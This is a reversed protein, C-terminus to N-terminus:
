DAFEYYVRGDLKYSGDSFISFFGVMLTISGIDYGQLDIGDSPLFDRFYSAESNSNSGGGGLGTVRSIKVIDAEGNTLLAVIDNFDPDNAQNFTVVKGSDGNMLTVSLDRLDNPCSQGNANYEDLTCVSLFMSVSDYPTSSSGGSDFEVVAASHRHLKRIYADLADIQGQLAADAAELESLDGELDAQAAELAEVRHNLGSEGAQGVGALSSLLLAVIALEWGSTTRQVIKNFTM